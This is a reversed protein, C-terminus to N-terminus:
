FRVEINEVNQPGCNFMAPAHVYLVLDLTGHMTELTGGDATTISQISLTFSGTPVSASGAGLSCADAGTNEVVSWNAVTDSSVSGTAPASPFDIAVDVEPVKPSSVAMSLLWDGADGQAFTACGPITATDVIDGSFYVTCPIPGADVV